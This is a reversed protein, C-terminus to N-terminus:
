GSCITPLTLHTYSVARVLLREGPRATAPVLARMQARAQIDDNDLLVELVSAGVPSPCARAVPQPTQGHLLSCGATASTLTIVGALAGVAAKRRITSM